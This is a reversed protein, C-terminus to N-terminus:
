QGFVQDLRRLLADVDEGGDEEAAEGQKKLTTYAFKRRSTSNAELHTQGKARRLRITVVGRPSSGSYAVIVGAAQEAHAIEWGFRGVTILAETYVENRPAEYSRILPAFNSTPNSITSCGAILLVILGGLVTKM